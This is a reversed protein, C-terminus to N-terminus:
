LRNKIGTTKAETKARNAGIARLMSPPWGAQGPVPSQQSGLSVGPQESSPHQLRTQLISENQQATMHSWNQTSVAMVTQSM